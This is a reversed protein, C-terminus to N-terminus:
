LSLTTLTLALSISRKRLAGAYPPSDHGFSKSILLVPDGDVFGTVRNDRM